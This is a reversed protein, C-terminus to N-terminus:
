RKGFELRNLFLMFNMVALIFIYDAVRLVLLEVKVGFGCGGLVCSMWKYFPGRTEWAKLKKFTFPNECGDVCIDVSISNM